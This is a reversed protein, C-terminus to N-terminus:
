AQNANGKTLNPWLLKYLVKILTFLNSYSFVHQLILTVATYTYFALRSCIKNKFHFKSNCAMKITHILKVIKFTKM